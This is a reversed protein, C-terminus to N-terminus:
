ALLKRGGTRTVARVFAISHRDCAFGLNAKRIAEISRDTPAQTQGRAVRIQDTPRWAFLESLEARYKRRPTAPTLRICPSPAPGCISSRGEQTQHLSASWPPHKLRAM